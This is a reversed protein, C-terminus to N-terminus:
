LEIEEIDFRASLQSGRPQSTADNVPHSALASRRKRETTAVQLLAM